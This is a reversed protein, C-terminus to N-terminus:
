PRDVFFNAWTLQPASDTTRRLTCCQIGRQSRERHCVEQQMRYLPGGVRFLTYQHVDGRVFGLIYEQVRVQTTNSFSVGMLGEGFARSAILLHCM